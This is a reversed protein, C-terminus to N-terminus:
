VEETGCECCGNRVPCWAEHETDPAHSIISRGSNMLRILERVRLVQTPTLMRCATLLAVYSDQDKLEQAIM